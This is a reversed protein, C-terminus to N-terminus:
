EHSKGKLARINEAAVAAVAGSWRIKRKEPDDDAYTSASRAYSARLRDCEAAAEELAADRAADRESKLTQIRAVADDCEDLGNALLLRILLEDNADDMM